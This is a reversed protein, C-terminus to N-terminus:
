KGAWYPSNYRTVPTANHFMDTIENASDYVFLSLSTKIFKPKMNIKIGMAAIITIKM